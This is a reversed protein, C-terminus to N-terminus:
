NLTALKGRATLAGASLGTVRVTAPKEVLSLGVSVTHQSTLPHSFTPL